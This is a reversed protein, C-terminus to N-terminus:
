LPFHANTFRPFFALSSVTASTKPTSSGALFLITSVFTSSIHSVWNLSSAVAVLLSISLKAGLDPQFLQCGFRASIVM